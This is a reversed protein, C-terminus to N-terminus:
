PEDRYHIYKCCSLVLSAGVLSCAKVLIVWHCKVGDRCTCHCCFSVWDIYYSFSVLYLYFLAHTIAVTLFHLLSWFWQPHPWRHHIVTLLNSDFTRWLLLYMFRATNIVFMVGGGRLIGANCIMHHSLFLHPVCSPMTPTNSRSRHQMFNEHLVVFVMSFHTGYDIDFGM